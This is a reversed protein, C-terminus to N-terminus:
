DGAILMKMPKLLENSNGPWTWHSILDFVTEKGFSWVSCKSVQYYFFFNWTHEKERELNLSFRLMLSAALKRTFCMMALSFSIRFDTTGSVMEGWSLEPLSIVQEAHKLGQSSTAVIYPLLMPPGQVSSSTSRWMLIGRIGASNDVM